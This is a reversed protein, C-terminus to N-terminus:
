PKANLISDILNPANPDLYGSSTDPEEGWLGEERPSDGCGGGPCTPGCLMMTSQSHWLQVNCELRMREGVPRRLIAGQVKELLDHFKGYDRNSFELNVLVSKRTPTRNESSLLEALSDVPIESSGAVYAIKPLTEASRHFGVSDRGVIVVYVSDVARSLDVFMVPGPDLFPVVVDEHGRRRFTMERRGAQFISQVVVMYQRYTTTSEAEFVVEGRPDMTIKDVLSGLYIGTFASDPYDFANNRPDLLIPALQVDDLLLENDTIRVLIPRSNKYGECASRVPPSMWLGALLAGAFLALLIRRLVKNSSMQRQGEHMGEGERSKWEM